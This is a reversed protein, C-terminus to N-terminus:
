KPKETAPDSFPGPGAAGIARVMFYYTMGSKLGTAKYSNRGLVVLPKWNEPLQPDGEGIIAEYVLRGKVRDWRLDIVGSLSSTLARLNGPAPLLGVPSASARTQMGASLIKEPDGGSTVQVYAGLLTLLDRLERMRQNRALYDQRGGNNLVAADALELADTAATVAPLAPNPTTFNINATMALVIARAREILQAPTLRALALKVFYLITAM